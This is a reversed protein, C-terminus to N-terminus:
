GTPPPFAPLPPPSAAQRAAKLARLESEADRRLALKASARLRLNLRWARWARREAAAGYSRCVVSRRNIAAEQEPGDHWRRDTSGRRRHSVRTLEPCFWSDVNTAAARLGLDMDEAYLHIAPDFPGLARLLSRPAAICAASLWAVRTRGDLRWPETKARVLRPQLRGPVVAGLWPWPGVPAGSASPQISRDPNLLRPGAICGRALAFEALLPLRDDLLETDPNLLVVAESAALEGGRNSAAGFGRNSDLREFRGKGQWQAAVSRPSDSSANDVVILEAAAGLHRNMSAILRALHDACQWTVVVVSLSL